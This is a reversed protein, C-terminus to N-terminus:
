YALDPGMALYVWQRTGDTVAGGSHDAINACKYHSILAKILADEVHMAHALSSTEYIPYLWVRDGYQRRYEAQRAPINVTRGIKFAKTGPRDIYSLAHTVIDDIVAAPRGTYYDM